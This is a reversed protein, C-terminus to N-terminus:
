WLRAVEHDTSDLVIYDSKGPYPLWVSIGNAWINIEVSPALSPDLQLTIFEDVDLAFAIGGPEFTVRAPGDTASLKIKMMSRDEM